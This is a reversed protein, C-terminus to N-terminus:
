VTRAALLSDALIYNLVQSHQHNNNNDIADSTIPISISHILKFELCVGTLSDSPAKNPQRRLHSVLRMHGDSMDAVREVLAFTYVVVLKMLLTRALGRLDIQCRWELMKHHLKSIANRKWHVSIPYFIQAGINQRAGVLRKIPSENAETALWM